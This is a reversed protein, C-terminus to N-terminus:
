DEDFAVYAGTLGEQYNIETNNLFFNYHVWGYGLNGWSTGWSNVIKFANLDNDYGVILVAHGCEDTPNLSFSTAMTEGNQIEFILDAWDLSIVIPKQQAILTKILNIKTYNLDVNSDPVGVRFYDKIKNDSAKILLDDTPLNACFEQSYPFDQWTNTGTTKLLELSDEISSGSLCNPNAKAQNYIFAPSMVNEYSKYEYGGQIKEQYSKMYYTTAWAVCSGQSGQSRVPPMDESLDFSEPLSTPIDIVDLLDTTSIRNNNSSCAVGTEQPDNLSEEVEIIDPVEIVDPEETLPNFTIYHDKCSNFFLIIGVLILIKNRM